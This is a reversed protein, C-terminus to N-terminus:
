CLGSIRLLAARAGVAGTEMIQSLTDIRGRGKGVNWSSM